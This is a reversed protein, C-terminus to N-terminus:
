TSICSTVSALAIGIVFIDTDPTKIVISKAGSRAIYGAHLFMRTHAEEHSCCLETVVQVIVGEKSPLLAHCM